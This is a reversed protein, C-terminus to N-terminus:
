LTIDTKVQDYDLYRSFFEGKGFFFTDEYREWFILENAFSNITHFSEHTNNRKTKENNVEEHFVNLRIHEYIVVSLQM